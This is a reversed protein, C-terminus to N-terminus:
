QPAARRNRRKLIWTVPFVAFLAAWLGIGWFIWASDPDSGNSVPVGFKVALYVVIFVVCLFSGIFHAFWHLRGDLLLCDLGLGVFWWVPLCFFPITISRWSELLFGKPRWSDPWSTLGSVAAEGFMGPMDLAMITHYSDASASDVVFSLVRQWPLAMVEAEQRTGFRVDDKADQKLNVYTVTGPIAVLLIWLALDLLPLLFSFSIRSQSRRSMAETSTDL